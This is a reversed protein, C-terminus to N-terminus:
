QNRLNVTKADDGTIMLRKGDEYNEHEGSVDDFRGLSHLAYDHPFKSIESNPDMAQGLFWREAQGPHRVYFPPTYTASKMDYVACIVYIM